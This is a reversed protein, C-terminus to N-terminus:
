MVSGDDDEFFFPPHLNTSVFVIISRRVYSHQWALGASAENNEFHASFFLFAVRHFNGENELRMHRWADSAEM